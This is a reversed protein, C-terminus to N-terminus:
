TGPGAKLDRLREEAAERDKLGQKRDVPVAESRDATPLTEWPFVAIKSNGGSTDRDLTLDRENAGKPRVVKRNVIELDLWWRKVPNRRGYGLWDDLRILLRRTWPLKIAAWMALQHQLLGEKNWPCMKMCRGCASGKQNTVRYSV